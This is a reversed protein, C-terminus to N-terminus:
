DEIEIVTPLAERDMLEESIKQIRAIVEPEPNSELLTKLMERQEILTETPVEKLNQRM